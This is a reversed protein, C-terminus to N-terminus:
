GGALGMVIDWEADSVPTISLMQGKKTVAMDELGPTAKLQALPVIQSFKERFRVDRVFWRPNEPASKPDYYESDPDFQTPDPYAESAIEMWGAIGTPSANSHYFFARDGVEMSDRLFNRVTYNRCGEWMGVGERGLDDIGYCDPESKM